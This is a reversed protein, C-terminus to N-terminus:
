MPFGSECDPAVMAAMPQIVMQDWFATQTAGNRAYPYSSESSLSLLPKASRKGLLATLVVGGAAGGVVPVLSRSRTLRVMSSANSSADFSAPEGRGGVSNKSFNRFRVIEAM